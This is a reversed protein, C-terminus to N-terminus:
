NRIIANLREELSKADTCKAADHFVFDYNEDTKCLPAKSDTECLHTYLINKSVKYQVTLLNVFCSM